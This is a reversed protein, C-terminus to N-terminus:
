RDINEAWQGSLLLGAPQRQQQRDISCISPHKDTVYVRLRMSRARAAADIIIGIADNNNSSM